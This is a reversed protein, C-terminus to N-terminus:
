TRTPSVAKTRARRWGIRLLWTIPQSLLRSRDCRASSYPDAGERQFHHAANELVYAIANALESPTTLLRSHYHDAFVRGARKMMANLAKAVRICLGQLGRSLAENSDAEVILHLHNGQISFEVVRLGLRGRAQEFAAAIRRYARGSRLNWVHRAVRLTVHAPMAKRFRPRRGHSVLARSGRPKRGAGTRRGGWERLPLPQQRM